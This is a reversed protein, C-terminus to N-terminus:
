GESPSSNVTTPVNSIYSSPSDVYQVSISAFSQQFPAPAVKMTFQGSEMKLRIRYLDRDWALKLRADVIPLTEMATLSAGSFTVSSAGLLYTGPMDSPKMEDYTIFNLVVDQYDSTDTLIFTESAADLCISRIYTNGCPGDPLPYAKEIHMSIEKQPGELDCCVSTALYVSGAMQDLGSITPLNHYGSQMTWIDYRDESFTKKSYTEVGIDVFLPRGDMFLIFSGTDNHNHNDANDGAKAAMVFRESRAVMLGVSPYFIDGAPVINRGGEAEHFRLVEDCYRVTLMRCYLNLKLSEDSFVDGSSLESYFDEAAAATLAGLGCARGFLYERVGMRGAKASCDALNVYYDGGIRVNVIYSAINRIKPMNFLGAFADGTMANLIDICHFMCLGAHRYYQAGEDCCGDEGYDKIFCDLSYAAQRIAQMRMDEDFPLLSVALLVNQTCWPTWNCMPEDGCGMWWFHDNLYPIIIRESVMGYIHKFILESVSDLEKKLLYYAMSLLAGTECAFLDLIPRSADPLILQPTDRVYTNHAPLVWTTEECICYIGDIIEGLYKGTGDALEAAVLACLKHRRSFFKKEFEERDGTRVFRMYDNATIVPYPLRLYKDGDALLLDRVPSSRDIGGAQIQPFPDYGIVPGDFSRICNGFPTEYKQM